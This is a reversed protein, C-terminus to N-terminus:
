PDVQISVNWRDFITHLFVVYVVSSCYPGTEATSGCNAKDSAYPSVGDIIGRALVNGSGGISYSPGGSDGQGAAVSGGSATAEYGWCTRYLNESGFCSFEVIDDTVTLDCHEGTMAGSTCVNALYPPAQLSAAGVKRSSSSNWAGSYVRGSTRASANNNIRPTILMSDVGTGEVDWEGGGAMIENHIGDYLNRTWGVFEDGPDPDNVVCHGASLLRGAGSATKVAFGTSCYTVGDYDGIAGGGFWPAYDDQRSALKTPKAAVVNVPVGAAAALDSGDKSSSTASGDQNVGIDIGSYDTNPSGKVVFRDGRTARGYEFAREIAAVLESRSFRVQQLVVPVGDIGDDVLNQVAKSPDGKWRLILRNNKYDVETQAFGVEGQHQGLQEAAYDVAGMRMGVSPAQATPREPDDNGSAQPLSTAAGILALGIGASIGLHWRVKIM